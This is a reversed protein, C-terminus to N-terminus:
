RIKFVSKSYIYGSYLTLIASFYIIYSSLINQRLFLICVIAIYQSMAKIKGHRKADIIIKKTVLYHGRLLTVYLERLTILIVPIATIYGLYVYTILVSIMLSKDALPDLFKGLNSIKGWKRAVHGDVVDTLTALIMFTLSVWYRQELLYHVIPYILLMRSFTILNAM